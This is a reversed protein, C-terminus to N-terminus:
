GAQYRIWEYGHGEIKLAGFKMDPGDFAPREGDGGMTMIIVGGVMMINRKQKAGCAIEARGVGGESVAKL